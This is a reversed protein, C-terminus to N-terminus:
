KIPENAWAIPGDKNIGHNLIILDKHHRDLAQSVYRAAFSMQSLGLILGDCSALTYIDRLAELGLRYHHLPRDSEMNHAGVDGEGRLVDDYYILCHHAIGDRFANLAGVDDTALFIQDYKGQSLLEKSKELYEEPRVPVPHGKNGVNFDTGRIHVGLTRREGLFHSIQNLYLKTEGNLRMHKRYQVGLWAIEEENPLYLSEPMEKFKNNIFWKQSPMPFVVNQSIAAEQYPIDSVPEYYYEFVNGTKGDMDSDYYHTHRGWKIVPTMGLEEAYGIGYLVWRLLAGFGGTAVADDGTGLYYIMRGPNREGLHNVILTTVDPNNEYYGKLLRYREESAWGIFGRAALYATRNGKVKAKLWDSFRGGTISRM